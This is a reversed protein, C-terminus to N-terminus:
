APPDQRMVWVPMPDSLQAVLMWGSREYLAVNQENTTELFAPLGEAAARALGARMVARSTDEGKIPRARGHIVPTEEAALPVGEVTAGMM